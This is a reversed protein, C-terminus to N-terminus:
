RLDVQASVVCDVNIRLVGVGEDLDPQLISVQDQCLLIVVM